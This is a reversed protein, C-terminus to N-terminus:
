QSTPKNASTKDVDVAAVEVVTVDASADKQEAFFRLLLRRAAEIPAVLEKNLLMIAQNVDEEHEEVKVVKWDKTPLHGEVKVVKCDKTPLHPNCEQL